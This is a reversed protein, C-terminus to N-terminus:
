VAQYSFFVPGENGLLNDMRDVSMFGSTCDDAARSGSIFM